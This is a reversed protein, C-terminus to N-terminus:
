NVLDPQSWRNGVTIPMYSGRGSASAGLKGRGSAGTDALARHMAHKFVDPFSTMEDSFQKLAKNADQAAKEKAKERRVEAVANALNLANIEAIDDQIDARDQNSLVDLGPISDIFLATHLITTALLKLGSFFLEGLKTNFLLGEAFPEMADTTKQFLLDAAEQSESMAKTQKVVDFVTNGMVVLAGVWWGVGATLSGILATVALGGAANGAVDGFGKGMMAKLGDLFGSFLSGITNGIIGGAISGIPGGLATGVASLGGSLGGGLFGMAINEGNGAGGQRAEFAKQAALQGASQTSTFRGAAAAESAGFGAFPNPSSSSRVGARRQGLDFTGGVADMASQARKMAGTTLVGQDAMGRLATSLEANMLVRTSELAYALESSAVAMSGGDDIFKQFREEYASVQQAFKEQIATIPGAREALATSAQNALDVGLRELAAQEDRLAQAHAKAAETAKKKETATKALADHIVTYKSITTALEQDDAPRVLHDLGLAKGVMSGAFLQGLMDFLGSSQTLAATVRDLETTMEKIWGTAERAAPALARGLSKGSNDIAAHMRAFADANTEGLEAARQILPLGQRIAENTFAQNQQAKDLKDATTGIAKAYRANAEEASVMIGLNDLIMRSQRATGTVISDFMFEASQGTTKAAALAIKGLEAFDEPKIGMTKALNSKGVLASDSLLGRTQERLREVSGGMREFIRQADDAQAGTEALNFARRATEVTAYAVALKGLASIGGARAQDLDLQAAQEQKLAAAHDKAARTAAQRQAVSAARQSQASLREQQKATQAMAREQAKLSDAHAKAAQAAAKQAAQERALEGTMAKLSRDVRLAEQQIAALATASLKSAQATNSLTARLETQRAQLAQIRSAVQQAATAVERQRGVFDGGAKTTQQFVTAAQKMVPTFASTAAKLHVTLTGVNLSM